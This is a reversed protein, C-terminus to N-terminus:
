GPQSGLESLVAFYEDVMRDCSFELIRQRARDALLRMKTPENLATRLQALMGRIDRVRFLLAHIDNSLIEPIGGADSCVMPLRHVMAERIASSCGGEYHSPFVFLDSARLLRSIDTRYGLVRVHRQLSTQQVQAELYSRQDGDGAWVFIVEPFEAIIDPIIHLLDGHGKQGTLRATTLLLKADVPISLEKRVDQRLVARAADTEKDAGSNIEVGNYLVGFENPRARFTKQLTILNQQSVAMWRQRRRRAWALLKLYLLPFGVKDHAMQFVVLAPMNYLACSLAAPWVQTPWGATIQVVDPQVSKLLRLMQINSSVSFRRPLLGFRSHLDFPRYTVGAKECDTIMSLTAPVRPFAAHVDVGRAALGLAVRLMHNESGYRERSDCITLLKM